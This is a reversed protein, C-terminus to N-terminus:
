NSVAAKGQSQKLAVLMRELVEKELAALQDLETIIKDLLHSDKERDKSAIYRLQTSRMVMCTRVMNSYAEHLYTYEEEALYGNDKLYQIREVMCSKHEVLVHMPRFDFWFDPLNTKISDYVEIGYVLHELRNQFMSFKKAADKSELFEEITHIVLDLDFDYKGKFPGIEKPVKHILLIQSRWNNQNQDDCHAYAEKFVDFSIESAEFKRNTGKFGIIHFIQRELDYGFVLNEHDWKRSNYAWRDEMYFEDLYLAVYHNHDICARVYQIIDGCTSEVLQRETSLFTLWNTNVYYNSDKRPGMYFDLPLDVTVSYDKLGCLQIYNSYFWPLYDEDISMISLATAHSSYSYIRPEALPLVKANTM